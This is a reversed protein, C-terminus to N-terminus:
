KMYISISIIREPFIVASPTFFFYLGSDIFTENRKKEYMKEDKEWTRRLVCNMFILSLIKEIAYFRDNEICGACM